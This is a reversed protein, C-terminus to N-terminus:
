KEKIERLKQGKVKIKLWKASKPIIEKIRDAWEIFVINEKTMFERIDINEFDDLHNLRYADIHVIKAIKAPYTKVLLYTPSTVIKKVGLAKAVIKVFTTKGAGLDGVLAVM